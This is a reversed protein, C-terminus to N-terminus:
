KMQWNKGCTFLLQKRKHEFVPEGGAHLCSRGQGYATALDLPYENKKRPACASRAQGKRRVKKQLTEMNSQRVPCGGPLSLVTESTLRWALFPPFGFGLWAKKLPPQPEALPLPSAHCTPPSNGAHHCSAISTTTPPHTRAYCGQQSPPSIPMLLSHPGDLSPPLPALKACVTRLEPPSHNQRTSINKESM